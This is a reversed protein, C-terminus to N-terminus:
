QVSRQRSAQGAIGISEIPIIDSLKIYFVVKTMNEFALMVAEGRVRSLSKM